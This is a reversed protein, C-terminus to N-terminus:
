PWWGHWGLASSAHGNEIRCYINNYTMEHPKLINWKRKYGEYSSLVHSLSVIEGVIIFKEYTKGLALSSGHSVANVKLEFPPFTSNQIISIRDNKTTTTSDKPVWSKNRCFGKFNRHFPKRGCINASLFHAWVEPFKGVLREEREKLGHIKKRQQVWISLGKPYCSEWCVHIYSFRFNVTWQLGGYYHIIQLGWSLPADITLAWPAV